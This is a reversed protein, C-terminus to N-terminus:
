SNFGTRTFYNEIHQATEKASVIAGEMYGPFSSATETGAIFLRGNMFSSRYIQHGNNQHPFPTTEYPYSTLSERKWLVEDYSIYTKAVEGYYHQLQQIIHALREKKSVSFYAPNVFGKLSFTDQKFNSHDYMETVPGANSFITGSLPKKLWFAVPYSLAIKISEGMWTHTQTLINNVEDPLSPKTEITKHFLFPPLTSVVLKAKFDGKNSEIGIEHDEKIISTVRCDYLFETGDLQRLLSEILFSSGGQIRFSPEQHLPLPVQQHPNNAMPEYFASEGMFQEFINLGLNKLLSLVERHNTHMWTAGMEVQVKDKKVTLIRGGSRKRGEVILVNLGQNKLYYALVLGTLGAGIIIVDKM